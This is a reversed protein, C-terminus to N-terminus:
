MPPPPGKAYIGLRPISLCSTRAYTTEDHTVLKEELLATGPQMGLLWTHCHCAGCKKQQQQQEIVDEVFCM